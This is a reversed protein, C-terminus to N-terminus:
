ILSKLDQYIYSLAILVHPYMLYRFVELIIQALAVGQNLRFLSLYTDVALATLSLKSKSLFSPNTLAVHVPFSFVSVMRLIKLFYLSPFDTALIVLMVNVGFSLTSHTIYSDVNKKNGFLEDVSNLDPNAYATPNPIPQLESAPANQSQPAPSVNDALRGCGFSSCICICICICIIKKM